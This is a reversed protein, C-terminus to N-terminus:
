RRACRNGIGGVHVDPPPGPRWCPPSSTTSIPLSSRATANRCLSASCPEPCARPRGTVLKGRLGVAELESDVADGEAMRRMMERSHQLASVGSKTLAFYKKSRGGPVPEPESISSTAYGKKELRELTAYVAGIAVQRDTRSQIERRITVGYAGGELHILALMVMQEFEGLNDGKAM